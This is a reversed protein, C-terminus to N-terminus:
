KVAVPTAKAVAHLTQAVKVNALPPPAAKAAAVQTEILSVANAICPELGALAVWNGTTIAAAVTVIISTTCGAVPGADAAVDALIIKAKAEDAALQTSTTACGSAVVLLLLLFRM